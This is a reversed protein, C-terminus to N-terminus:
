RRMPAIVIFFLAAGVPAARERAFLGQLPRRGATSRLPVFARPTRRGTTPASSETRGPHDSCGTPRSEHTGGGGARLATMGRWHAGRLLHGQPVCQSPFGDKQAPSFPNGRRKAGRLSLTHLPRRGRRGAECPEQEAKYGMACVGQSKTPSPTRSTGNQVTGTKSQLPPRGQGGQIIAAGRLAPGM